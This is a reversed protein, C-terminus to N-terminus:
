PPKVEVVSLPLCAVTFLSALSCLDGSNDATSALCPVGALQNRGKRRGLRLSLLLVSMTNLSVRSLSLCFLGFITFYECRVLVIGRRSCLEALWLSTAAAIAEAGMEVSACAFREVFRISEGGSIPGLWLWGYSGL